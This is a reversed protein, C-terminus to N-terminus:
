AVQTIIASTGGTIGAYGPNWGMFPVMQMSWAKVPIKLGNPDYGIERILAPVTVYQASQIQVDVSVWDGIDLLLSRWTLEVDIVEFFASALKLSEEVQATVTDLEYLNPYVLRRSIDKGAATVAATNEFLPTEYAEEGSDPLLNYVGKARNFNHRPDIAPKFSDRVVDWNRLRFAPSAMFEDFHLANIKWKLTRDVFAELRVQELLSLAVTLVEIAEQQHHRAKHNAIASEPPSSKAAYTAWNANFDADVLGAYRKMLDKAIAVANNTETGLDYGVCKVFFQDGRDFLYAAGDIWLTGTNQLLQFNKNGVGVSTIESAPVQTWTSGRYLWVDSTAFSKLAHGAIWLQLNKHTEGPDAIVRHTGTGADATAIASGGPTAALEFTHETAAVIFYTIGDSLPTPLAGDTQLQVADDDEFRHRVAGFVAPSGPSIVITQDQFHVYPDRGNVLTAPISAGRPNVAVTYDGYIVPVGKGNVEDEIDAFDDRLFVTAPFKVNVDDKDDRVVLKVSRVDRGFGGADSVKGRFISTYTAAVDRLGLKVEVTNGIWTTFDDGAPLFHNFRGDVNALNLTLTSFQLASELWEGITRQIVPFTLLAEYFNPGVYKNRDSAYITSGDPAEIDVVLELDCTLADQCSDLFAQDLTMATLYTFRNQNTSM